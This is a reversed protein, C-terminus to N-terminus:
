LIPQYTTHFERAAVKRLSGDTDRVVYDGVYPRVDHVAHPGFASAVEDFNHGTWEVAQVVGPRRNYLKM